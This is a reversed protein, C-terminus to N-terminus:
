RRGYRRFLYYVSGAAILVILIGLWGWILSTEVTVRVSIKSSTEPTSATMETVYDGAIAKRDAKITAFVQASQGASISEVKAPEFQVDWNAPTTAKLEVNKLDASGTNKVQLEIRKHDGATVDTSLLGSPTTLEMSYSGTVTVELELRASTGGSSALVPIKYTGAKTQDSPKIEITLEQTKNAEINVSSVQKYNAKFAINWGEPALASLAYVQNGATRNQLTANFTFTSSAAGEMNAQTTTLDTQYTGQRSIIVTLPLTGMGRATVYFRYAGKNVKFPVQVQLALNKRDNPLVSVQEVTWGGSKLTYTWGKPLGTIAIDARKVAKSNNIVDISFDLSEGPPVSIKTYPTYLTLGQARVSQASFVAIAGTILLLAMCQM